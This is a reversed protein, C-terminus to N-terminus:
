AAQRAPRTCPEYARAIRAGDPRTPSRRSRARSGTSSDDRLETPVGRPEFVEEGLPRLRSRRLAHQDHDDEWRTSICPAGPPVVTARDTLLCLHPRAGRRGRSGAARPRRGRRARATERQALLCVHRGATTSCSPGDSRAGRSLGACLREAAGRPRDRGAAHAVGHRRPAARSRPRALRGAFRRPARSRAERAAAPARAWPGNAAHAATAVTDRPVCCPPAIAPPLAVGHAELFRTAHTVLRAAPAASGHRDPARTPRSSRRRGRGRRLRAASQAASPAAAVADRVAGGLRDAGSRSRSACSSACPARRRSTSGAATSRLFRDALLMSPTVAGRLALTRGGRNAPSKARAPRRSAASEEYVILEAHHSKEGSAFRVAAREDDNEFADGGPKGDVEVADGTIQAAPLAAVAAAAPHRDLGVPGVDEGADAGALRDAPRDRHQDLVAVPHVPLLRHAGPGLRRRVGVPAFRAGTM